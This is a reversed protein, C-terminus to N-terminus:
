RSASSSASGCRRSRRPPVSSAAAMPEISKREGDLLLGTVYLGKARRREESGMGEVLSGVYETLERELKLIARLKM